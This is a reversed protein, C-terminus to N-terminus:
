WIIELDKLKQVFIQYDSELVERDVEYNSIIREIMAAKKDETLAKWFLSGIEDLVTVNGNKLNIIMTKDEVERIVLQNSVNM